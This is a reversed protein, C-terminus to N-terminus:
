VPKPVKTLRQRYFYGFIKYIDIQQQQTFYKSQDDVKGLIGEIFHWLRDIRVQQKSNVYGLVKECIVETQQDKKPNLDVNFLQSIITLAVVPTVSENQGVFSDFEQRIGRTVLRDTNVNIRPATCQM